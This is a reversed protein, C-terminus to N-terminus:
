RVTNKVELPTRTLRRWCSGIVNVHWAAVCEFGIGQPTADVQEDELCEVELGHM